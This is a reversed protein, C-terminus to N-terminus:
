KAFAAPLSKPTGTFPCPGNTGSRSQDSYAPLPKYLLWGDSQPLEPPNSILENTIRRCPLTIVHDSWEEDSTRATAAGALHTLHQAFM